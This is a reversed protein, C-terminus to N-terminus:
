EINKSFMYPTHDGQGCIIVKKDIRKAVEVVERLGKIDIIRGFYLVYDGEYNNTAKVIDEIEEKSDSIFPLVPM